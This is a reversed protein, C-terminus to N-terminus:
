RAAASRGPRRGQDIGYPGSDEGVIRTDLPRYGPHAWRRPAPRRQQDDLFPDVVAGGIVRRDIAIELDALVHREGLDERDLCARYIIPTSLFIGLALRGEERGVAHPDVNRELRGALRCGPAADQQLAITSALWEVDRPSHRRAAM